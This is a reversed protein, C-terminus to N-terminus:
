LNIHHPFFCYFCWEHRSHGEAWRGTRGAKHRLALEQVTWCVLVTENRFVAKMTAFVEGKPSFFWKKAFRQKQKQINTIVVTIHYPSHSPRSLKSKFVLVYCKACLEALAVFM